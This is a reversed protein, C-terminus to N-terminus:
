NLSVFKDDHLFGPRVRRTGRHDSVSVAVIAPAADSVLNRSYVAKQFERLQGDPLVRLFCKLLVVSERLCTNLDFHGDDLATWLHASDATVGRFALDGATSRFDGGLRGVMLRLAHIKGFFRAKPSMLLHGVLLSKQASQHARRTHFDAPNLPAFSPMIGHEKCHEALSHLINELPNTLRECLASTLVVSQFCQMLCGSERLSIAENLSASFVLYPTELDRSCATFASLQAIPLGGFWDVEVSLGPGLNHKLNKL